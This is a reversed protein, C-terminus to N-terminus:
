HGCYCATEYLEHGTVPLRMCNIDVIVIDVTIMLQTLSGAVTTMLQTPSGVCNIVVTAPLRVCSIIVTM